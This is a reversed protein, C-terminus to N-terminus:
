NTWWCRSLVFKAAVGLVCDAMALDLWSAARWVKSDAADQAIAVAATFLTGIKLSLLMKVSCYLYCVQEEAAFSSSYIVVVDRGNVGSKCIGALQRVFQCLWRFTAGDVDFGEFSRVV